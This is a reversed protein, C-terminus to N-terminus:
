IESAPNGYPPNGPTPNALTPNAQRPINGAPPIEPAASQDSGVVPASNSKSPTPNM